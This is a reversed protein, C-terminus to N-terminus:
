PALVPKFSSGTSVVIFHPLFLIHECNKKVRGTSHFAVCQKTSTCWVKVGGSFLTKRISPRVVRRSCPHQALVFGGLSGMPHLCQMALVRAGESHTSHCLICSM